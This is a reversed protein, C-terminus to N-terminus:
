NATQRLIISAREDAAIQGAAARLAPLEAVPVLVKRITYTRKYEIQGGNVTISSHYAIAGCDVNVPAPLEDVVYGPPLTFRFDDNEFATTPFELPYQRKKGSSVYPEKRGLVAPRLLLLNGATRAYGRAVFSYNVALDGGFQRLNGLTASELDFNDLFVGLFRNMIKAREAPVADLYQARTVEAQEGLRVEKVSGTLNGDPQLKFTGDRMLRNANPPLLPLHVLEGGGPAVLLVSNDQLMDPLYGFPAYEDTADFFLLKGLKPDNVTAFLNPDTTGPPLQIALIMHDFSELSPFGRRVIGRESQAVAYYSKVGIVSLMSSLLTTKDKCDGYQKAFIQGAPHPQYGGIGIEIAVYRVNQQVYAAIARIKDLLRPRNATLAEVEQRIAPTPTRSDAALAAYWLGLDHWSGAQEVQAVNEPSDYKVAMSGAVARWPPMDDEVAIAPINHLEWFHVDQAPSAPDISPHNAWYVTYKWGSPISLLYRADLVPVTQQFWWDDEDINPRGEQVYEYAVVNGPVSAPISLVYMHTDNYLDNPDLDTEIADKQKVENSDGDPALSWGKLYTLPTDKSSYIVVQGYKSGKNLLIKYAMRYRTEVEGNSNVTTQQDSYLAVAATDDSLKPLTAHAAAVVWDPPKSAHAAAAFFVVAAALALLRSTAPPRLPLRWFPKITM